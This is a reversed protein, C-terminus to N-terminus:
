RRKFAHLRFDEIIDSARERITVVAGYGTTGTFINIIGKKRDDEVYLKNFQLPAEWNGNRSALLGDCFDIIENILLASQKLYENNDREIELETVNRRSLVLIHDEIRKSPSSGKPVALFQLEDEFRFLNKKLDEELPILWFAAFYIHAFECLAGYFHTIEFGARPHFDIRPYKRIKATNEEIINDVTESFPRDNKKKEFRERVKEFNSIEALIFGELNMRNEKAMRLREEFLNRNFWTASHKKSYEDYRKRLKVILKDIEETSLSM